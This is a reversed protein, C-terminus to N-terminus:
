DATTPNSALNEGSPGIIWTQARLVRESDTFSALVHRDIAIQGGAAVIALQPATVGSAGATVTVSGLSYWKPGVVTCPLGWADCRFAGPETESLPIVGDPDSTLLMGDTDVHVIGGGRCQWGAIAAYMRARGRATIVAAADVHHYPRHRVTRRVWLGPLIKLSTTVFPWWSPDPAEAAYIVDTREPSEGLKGYVANALRKALAHEPTGRETSSQAQALKAVFSATDVHETFVWGFLPVVNYGLARLGAVEAYPLCALCTWGRRSQKRFRAPENPWAGLPVPMDSVGEVRTLYIGDREVGGQQCRGLASRTPLGQGLAWTYLKNVDVRWAPGTYKQAYVLGGRYAGGQRCMAVLLPNPRFWVPEAPLNASLVKVAMSGVTMRAGVGFRDLTFGQLRDLTRWLDLVARESPRGGTEPCGTFSALTARESGTMTGVDALLWAEKDLRFEIGLVGGASAM